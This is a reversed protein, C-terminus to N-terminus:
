DLLTVAQVACTEASYLIHDQEPTHNTQTSFTLTSGCVFDALVLTRNVQTDEEKSVVGLNGSM